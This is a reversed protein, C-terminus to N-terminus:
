LEKHKNSEGDVYFQQDNNQVVYDFDSAIHGLSDTINPDAGHALLLDILNQHEEINKKIINLTNNLKINTGNESDEEDEENLNLDNLYPLYKDLLSQVQAKGNYAFMLATHGQSNKKNIDIMNFSLLYSVIENNGRVAAAMLSNTGDIDSSHILNIDHKLIEKIIEVYGGASAAIIPSIGENDSLNLDANYEILKKVIELDGSYAAHILPTVGEKDQYNVQAGASILLSALEFDSNVIAEYVLDHEEMEKNSKSSIEGEENESDNTSKWKYTMNPDIKAGSSLLHLVVDRHNNKLAYILASFNEEDVDDLNANNDILLQLIKLNGKQASIMLATIGDTHPELDEGKLDKGNNKEFNEAFRQIYEPTAEVKINVDAGKEILYNAIEYYEGLVTFMLSTAGSESISNVDFNLEEVFFQVLNFYGYSSAIMLVNNGDIDKAQYDANVHKILYYIVDEHGATVAELLATGGHSHRITYDAGYSILEKVIDLHGSACAYMLATVNDPHTTALSAGSKLLEKVIEYQGHASAIILATFGTSSSLNVNSKAEILLKVIELNGRESASILATIGEDDQFDVDIEKFELLLKVINIYNNTAALMLPTVGDDRAENVNIEDRFKTLIYKVIEENGQSVAVWLLTMNNKTKLTYDAKYKEILLKFMNFNNYSISQMLPTLNNENQNYNVDANNQILFDLLEQNNNMISIILPSLNNWNYFNFNFNKNKKNLLFSKIDEINNTQCLHTIYSNNNTMLKLDESTVFHLNMTTYNDKCNMLSTSYSKDVDVLTLPTDKSSIEITENSKVLCLKNKNFTLAYDSEQDGIINFKNACASKCSGLIIESNNDDDCYKKILCLNKKNKIKDEDDVEELDDEDDEHLNKNEVEYTFHIKKKHLSYKGPKGSVYWLSDLSCSKFYEGHLCTSDHVDQLFFVPPGYLKNVENAKINIFCIASVLVLFLSFFKEVRM